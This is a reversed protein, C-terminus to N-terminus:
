GWEAPVSVFFRCFCTTAHRSNCFKNVSTFFMWSLLAENGRFTKSAGVGQEGCGSAFGLAGRWLLSADLRRRPTLYGPDRPCACGHSAAIFCLKISFVTCVPSMYVCSSNKAIHISNISQASSAMKHSLPVLKTSLPLINETREWRFVFVASLICPQKFHDDKEFYWKEAPWKLRLTLASEEVNDSSQQVFQLFACFQWAARYDRSWLSAEKPSRTVFRQICLCVVLSKKRAGPFEPLFSFSMRSALENYSSHEIWESGWIKEASFVVSEEKFQKLPWNSCRFLFISTSVSLPCESLELWGVSM